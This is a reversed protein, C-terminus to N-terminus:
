EKVAGATLGSMFFHSASLFAILLPTSAMASALMMAGQDSGRTPDGMMYKLMLPLTHLTEDRLILMPQMFDNWSGVFMMIGLAALGPVLIPAVIRFYITWESVGDIRAADLLSAPVNQRCYQRMWFIGFANAAGPVILALYNNVWGFKSMMFFWPIIGATWPIMMTVLLLTFLGDRGPFQYMAFAYGGMSCFLLVLATYSVSILVSNLFSQLFNVSELVTAFNNALNSGFWLPPPYQYIAETSQTSLVLMWFFPLIIVAAFAILALHLTIKKM